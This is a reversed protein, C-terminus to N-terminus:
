LVATWELIRETVFVVACASVAVTLLGKKKYAVFLAAATGTIGSVVSATSSFIDPFVMAALLGYPLYCLVSSIYQNKIKKRFLTLPLMRPLYTVLAMILIVLLLKQVSM